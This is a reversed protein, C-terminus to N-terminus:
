KMDKKIKKILFIGIFFVFILFIILYSLPLGINTNAIYVITGTEPNDIVEVIKDLTVITNNSYKASLVQESTISSKGIFEKGDSENPAIASYTLEVTEDVDIIDVNWTITNDSKNYEGNDTISEEDVEIENPVYTVIVNGNSPINGTNKIRIKYNLEKKNSANYKVLGNVTNEMEFTVEGKQAVFYPVLYYAASDGNSKKHCKTYDDIIIRGQDDTDMCSKSGYNYNEIGVLDSLSNISPMEMNYFAKHSPHLALEVGKDIIVGDKVHFFAQSRSLFVIDNKKYGNVSNLQELKIPVSLYLYYYTDSLGQVVYFVSSDGLDQFALIDEVTNVNSLADKLVKPLLGIIQESNLLGIFQGNEKKYTLLHHDGYEEETTFFGTRYNSDYSVLEYEEGKLVKNDSDVRMFATDMVARFSYDDM